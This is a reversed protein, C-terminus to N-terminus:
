ADGRGELGEVYARYAPNWLAGARRSRILSSIKVGSWGYTEHLAVSAILSSRNLGYACHVLVRKEAELAERTKDIGPRLLDFDPLHGRHDDFPVRMVEMGHHAHPRRQTTSILVQIEADLMEKAVRGYRIPIGGIWLLPTIQTITTKVEAWLLIQAYTPEGNEDFM